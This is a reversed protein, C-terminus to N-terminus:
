EVYGLARLRQLTENDPAVLGGRPGLESALQRCGRRWRALKTRLTQLEGPRGAALNEREWPDQSRDFLQETSAEVIYTFDGHRLSEFVRGRAPDSHESAVDRAEQETVEGHLLPALSLGQQVPPAPVEVLDLITPMVDIVRVRQPVRQGASLRGPFRLVLPVRLTEGYLDGHLFVGHEGFAEGHDSTFVVLTDNALGLLDLHDLLPGITAEDMHRIAADYLSKVFRVDLPDSSDVSDWFIRHAPRWGGVDERLREVAVRVPGRYDDEDFLDILREPPLYPDHVAYTHFFLFFKRRRHRTMWDVARDLQYGHKYVDFGQEFGRSRHMNGRGTFAATVYGANKLVEALTHVAGNLVPGPENGRWMSVGHVCPYLSTLMTMHSPTTKPSQSYCREFTVGQAALRGDIEPSTPRGYGYAGLRDARLTDVSILLVNPGNSTLWGDLFGLGRCVGLGGVILVAARAIRPTSGPGVPVELRGALWRILVVGSAIVAGPAVWRDFFYWLDAVILRYYGPAWYGQTLGVHAATIAAAVAAIVGAVGLAVALDNWISIQSRHRRM